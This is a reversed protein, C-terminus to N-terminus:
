QAEKRSTGKDAFRETAGRINDSIIISLMEIVEEPSGKLDDKLWSTLIGAFAITYYHVLFDRYKDAISIEVAAEDVLQRILDKMARRFFNELHSGGMSNLMCLCVARNEEVYCLLRLCAEEWTHFSVTERLMEIAEQDFMWEVLDYIDKFHYYFTQRNLGCDEIIEKVTIKNLPKQEMKKKLADAMRKKTLETMVSHAM